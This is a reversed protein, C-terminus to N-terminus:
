RECTRQGNGSAPQRDTQEPQNRRLVAEKCPPNSEREPRETTQRESREAQLRDPERDLLKGQREPQWIQREMQSDVPEGAKEQQQQTGDRGADRDVSRAVESRFAAVPQGQDGKLVV